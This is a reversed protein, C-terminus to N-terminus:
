WDKLINCCYTFRTMVRLWLIKLHISIIPTSITLFSICCLWDPTRCIVWFEIRLTFHFIYANTESSWFYLPVALHWLKIRSSHLTDLHEVQVIDLGLSTWDVRIYKRFQRKKHIFWWCSFDNAQNSSFYVYMDNWKTSWAFCVALVNKETTVNSTEANLSFSTKIEFEIKNWYCLVSLLTIINQHFHENKSSILTCLILTLIWKM